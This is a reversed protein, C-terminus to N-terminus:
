MVDMQLNEDLDEYPLFCEVEQGSCGLSTKEVLNTMRVQLAGGPRGAAADIALCTFEGMATRPDKCKTSMGEVVLNHGKESKSSHAIAFLAYQIRSPLLYLPCLSHM